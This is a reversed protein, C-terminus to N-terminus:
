QRIERVGRGKFYFKHWELSEFYDLVFKLLFQSLSYFKVHYIDHPTKSAILQQKFGM